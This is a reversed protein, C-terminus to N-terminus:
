ANLPTYYGPGLTTDRHTPDQKRLVGMTDEEYGCAQGPSPISPVDYQSAVRQLVRKAPHAQILHFCCNAGHRPPNEGPVGTEEWLGFVHM